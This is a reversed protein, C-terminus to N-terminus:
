APSTWMRATRQGLRSKLILSPKEVLVHVVLAVLLSLAGFAPLIALLAVTGQRLLAEPWWYELLAWLVITHTLYWPYALRGLYGLTPNSLLRQQPAAAAGLVVAGFGVALVPPILLHSLMAGGEGMVSAWVTATVVCSGSVLLLPGYRRWTPTAHVSSNILLAGVAGAMLADLNLHFPNRWLLIFEAYSDAPGGQFMIFRALVSLSGIAALIAARTLASRARLFALMVLPMLLYFKEEVGLSWFPGVIDSPLYDQMLALHYALRFGFQEQPLERYPVAGLAVILLVVYYTPVIRLWRRTLYLWIDRQTPRASWSRLLHHTILFGSLVFFLNVGVWAQAAVRVPWAAADPAITVTAHYVVVLLIAVARVGDLAPMSGHADFVSYWRQRRTNM